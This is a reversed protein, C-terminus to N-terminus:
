PDPAELVLVVSPLPLELLVVYLMIQANFVDDFLKRLRILVISMM